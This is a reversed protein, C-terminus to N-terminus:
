SYCFLLILAFNVTSTFLLHTEFIFHPVNNRTSLLKITSACFLFPAHTICLHCAILMTTAMTDSAVWTGSKNQADVM